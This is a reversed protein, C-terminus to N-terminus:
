HKLDEIGEKKFSESANDNSDHLRGKEFEELNGLSSPDLGCIKAIFQLDPDPWKSMQM